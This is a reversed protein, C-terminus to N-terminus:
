GLFLCFRYKNQSADNSFYVFISDKFACHLHAFIGSKTVQFFFSFEGYMLLPNINTVHTMLLM